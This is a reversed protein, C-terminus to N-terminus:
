LLKHAQWFILIQLVKRETWLIERYFLKLPLDRMVSRLKGM